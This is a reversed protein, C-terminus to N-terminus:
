FGAIDWPEGGIYCMVRLISDSVVSGTAWVIYKQLTNRETHAIINLPCLSYNLMHIM